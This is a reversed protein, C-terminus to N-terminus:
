KRKSAQVAKFDNLKKGHLSNKGHLVSHLHKFDNFCLAARANKIIKNNHRLSASAYNEFFFHWFSIYNKTCFPHKLQVAMFDNLFKDHLM